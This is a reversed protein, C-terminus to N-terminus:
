ESRKKGEIQEQKSGSKGRQRERGQNVSKYGYGKADKKKNMAGGKRKVCASKRKSKVEKESKKKEKEKKQHKRIKEKEIKNRM